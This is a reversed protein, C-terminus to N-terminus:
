NGVYLGPFQTKLSALKPLDNFVIYPQTPHLALYNQHYAEAPYFAPLAVIETVIPRGFANAKDLQAVYAQAVRKQEDSTAFIASRYQTGHDPGQRNLQTPDHAVSFFVTLM